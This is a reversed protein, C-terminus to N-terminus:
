TLQKKNIKAIKEGVINVKGTEKVQTHDIFVIEYQEGFLDFKDLVNLDYAVDRYVTIIIRDNPMERLYERKIM